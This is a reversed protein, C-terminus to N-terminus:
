FHQPTELGCFRHHSSFNVAVGCAVYEVGQRIALSLLDTGTGSAGADQRRVTEFQSRNPLLRRFLFLTYSRRLRAKFLSMAFAFPEIAM